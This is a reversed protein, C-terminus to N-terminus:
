SSGHLGQPKSLVPGRAVWHIPSKGQSSGKPAVRRRDVPLTVCGLAVRTPAVLYKSNERLKVADYPLPRISSDRSLPILGITSGSGFSASSLSLSLLHQSVDSIGWHWWGPRKIWM